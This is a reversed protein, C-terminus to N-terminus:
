KDGDKKSKGGLLTAVQKQTAEPLGKIDLGGEHNPDVDGFGGLHKIKDFLESANEPHSKQLKELTVNDM